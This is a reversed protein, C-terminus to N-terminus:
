AEALPHLLIRSKLNGPFAVKQVATFNKRSEEENWTTRGPPLPQLRFNSAETHCSICRAHGPRKALFIPEIKTKFVEYDLSPGSGAPPPPQKGLPAGAM